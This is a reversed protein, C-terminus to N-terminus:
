QTTKNRGMTKGLKALERRIEKPDATLPRYIEIRDGETLVYDQKKRVGFVGVVLKDSELEAFKNVIKSRDILQKITVGQEVELGILYQSKQNVYALEVHILSVLTSNVM